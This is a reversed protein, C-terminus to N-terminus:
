STPEQKHGWAGTVPLATVVATFSGARVLAAVTKVVEELKLVVGPLFSLM